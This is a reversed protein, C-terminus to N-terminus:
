PMWAASDLDDEGADEDGDTADEEQDSAAEVGSTDNNVDPVAIAKAKARIKRKRPAQNGVLVTGNPAAVDPKEAKGENKDKDAKAAAKATAKAKAKSCHHPVM